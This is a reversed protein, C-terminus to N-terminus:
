TPNTRKLRQPVQFSLCRSQSISVIIHRRRLHRLRRRFHCADRNRSQFEFHESSEIGQGADQFSLCRSQSISVRIIVQRAPYRRGSIVLMEIALNFSDNNHSPSSPKDIRFHYADRNRSQFSTIDLRPTFVDPGSIILMEIALNFSISGINANLKVGTSRFHYADRNRSQFGVEM